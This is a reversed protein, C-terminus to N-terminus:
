PHFGSPPSAGRSIGADFWELHQTLATLGDIFLLVCIIWVLVLTHIQDPTLESRSDAMTARRIGLDYVSPAAVDDSFRLSLPSM